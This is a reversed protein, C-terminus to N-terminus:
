WIAYSGEPGWFDDPPEELLDYHYSLEYIKAIHKRYGVRIKHYKYDLPMAVPYVMNPNEKAMNRLWDWANQITLYSYKPGWFDSQHNQRMWLIIQMPKGEEALIGESMAYMLSGYYKPLKYKENMLKGLAVGTPPDIGDAKAIDDIITNKWLYKTSFMGPIGIELGEDYIYIYIVEKVLMYDTKWGWPSCYPRGSWGYIRLWDMPKVTHKPRITSRCEGARVAAIKPEYTLAKNWKRGSM